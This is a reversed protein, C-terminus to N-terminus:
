RWFFLDIFERPRNQRCVTLINCRVSPTTDLASRTIAVIAPEAVALPPFRTKRFVGPVIVRSTELTKRGVEWCGCCIRPVSNRITVAFM